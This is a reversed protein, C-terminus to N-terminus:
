SDFSGCVSLIGRGVVLRGDGATCFCCVCACACGMTVTLSCSGPERGAAICSYRGAWISALSTACIGKSAYLHFPIMVALVYWYRKLSSTQIYRRRCLPYLTGARICSEFLYSRLKRGQRMAFLPARRAYTDAQEALTFYTYACILYM